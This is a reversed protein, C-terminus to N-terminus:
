LLMACFKQILVGSKKNSCHWVAYKTLVPSPPINKRLSVHLESTGFHRSGFTEWVCVCVCVCVCLVNYCQLEHGYPLAGGGQIVGKQRGSTVTRSWIKWTKGEATAPSPWSRPVIKCQWTSVQNSNMARVIQSFTSCTCQFKIQFLQSKHM